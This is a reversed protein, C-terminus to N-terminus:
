NASPREVRDIVLHEQPGKDSVLKLGVRDLAAFV